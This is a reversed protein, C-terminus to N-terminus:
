PIAGVAGSAQPADVRVRVSMSCNNTTASENEVSDVCAGYYYTGASPAVVDVSLESSEGAPMAPVTSEGVETDDASIEADDSRYYRLTTAASAADGENDVDADLTFSEGEILHTDSAGVWSVVLDAATTTLSVARSCNNTSDSERPVPDVCVGYSHTGRELPAVLDVTVTHSARAVLGAVTGAGVEEDGTDITSDASRYYRVTTSDAAGDGQNHITAELMFAGGLEVTSPDVRPSVVGLDPKGPDEVVSVSVAASCNNATDSEGAVVAVCMGYHYDGLAMPATIAISHSRTASVDLGGVITSGVEADTTDITMDDSQYFRMTTAASAGNGQNWIVASLTLSSGAIPRANGAWQSIIVLDPDGGGDDVGLASRGFVLIEQSTTTVYLNQGDPNPVTHIPAGFNPIPTNQRDPQWSALYDTGEVRQASENWKVTFAMGNCIADVVTPDRRVDAFRCEASGASYPVEWFRPTAGLYRPDTPDGLGYVRTQEGGVGDLVFLRSDDDAIAIARGTGQLTSEYDHKTLVGSSAHVEFALLRDDALAYVHDDANALVAHKLGVAEHTQQFSITGTDDISYLDIYGDGVRYLSRAESPIMLDVGCRGPEDAVTMSVAANLGGSENLTYSQWDGCDEVLLQDRTADWALVSREFDGDILQQWDLAGSEGRAFVHLGINSGVYLPTGSAHIAMRGLGRLEVPTGVSNRDGNAIRGTLQLWAPAETAEWSLTFNDGSRTSPVGLAITYKTGARANFLLETTGTGVSRQWKSSALIELGGDAGEGHITLVWPGEPAYFRVWGTAPADYTWWVTSRGVQERSSWRDSSAHRNTGSVSGSEGPLAAATTPTDNTPTPGWVLRGFLETYTLSHASDVPMGHAFWYQDGKAADIQIEPSGGLVTGGLLTLSSVEPEGSGAKAFATLHSLQPAKGLVHSPHSTLRWTFRGDDPAEWVWWATRVGTEVPEGPEVSHDARIEVDQESASNALVGASAFMDHGAAVTGLNWSLEYDTTAEYASKHGVVIKYELGESARFAAYRSLSGSVLRLTEVAEGQFIALSPAGVRPNTVHFAADGNTPATWSFWTTAALPLWEGRELTAGNTTAETTGVEGTLVTANAFENNVPGISREWALELSAGRLYNAVRIRYVTGKSALLFASSAGSAVRELSALANGVFVDVRDYGGEDVTRVPSLGFRFSGNSPATWTYWVSGAPRGLYDYYAPTNPMPEREGVRQWLAPEGPEPTAGLLLLQRTGSDGDIPTASQFNDNVPRAPDDPAGIGVSVGTSGANANWASASFHLRASTDRNVAVELTVQQSEGAGVEGVPLSGGLNIASSRCQSRADVCTVDETLDVSIGDERVVAMSVFDIDDCGAVAGDQCDVHLRTGAAVYGDAKLTLVLEHTGEGSISTTDASVSLTPTSAGRIITWALAARPAVSHVREAVIRATYTGAEPSQVIIWEVNDVASASVHEGCAAIECDGGQDLWLDLDSLVAEAIAEAPPEDWTLVLDLRSTGEPVVIEQTAHEGMGLEATATGSTWGDAGDRDFTSTRASAKGLGHLTQIGGPGNSNDMPFMTADAFWADPRIATAMLRARTSAPHGRHAPVADMLLAAIGAVSPAAMSTGNRRAYENRSGAGKASTVAVGTGTLNPALRGDVTPGRSSFYAVDGSDIAAGVALSNKAAAYESYATIGANAQSVVYLQGHTWVASDLKREAVGRGDIDSSHASLSMNVVLPKNNAIETGAEGCGRERALYDIGRNVSDDNGFNFVNLVKAVRIHRVAPAVGAFRPEWTGNGVFTGTVHTGHGVKDFWLDADEPHEPSADRRVFNAGCISDRHSVIDLHEVNLGSDMVGIPVSAGATGTFIGPAAYSRLADAGMAPVATDHAARVIRVPHVDLVFDAAAIAGLNAEAVTARYTRLDADYGGVVAGLKGLMGRWHGSRDDVMLTVFVPMAEGSANALVDDGFSRLKAAPPRAGIGVIEPSGAIMALLEEDAPLRARAFRGTGGVVESNRSHLLLSVDHITADSALEVWGFSWERGAAAAQAIITSNAKPSGMWDPARVQRKTGSEGTHRATAMAGHHKALAYGEPLWRGTSAVVTARDGDPGTRPAIEGEIETIAEGRSEAQIRAVVAELSRREESLASASTSAGGREGM